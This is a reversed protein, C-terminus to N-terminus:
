KDKGEKEETAAAEELVRIIINIVLGINPLSNESVNMNKVVEKIMEPSDSKNLMEEFTYSEGLENFHDVEEEVVADIESGSVLNMPMGATVFVDRIVLTAKIIEHHEEETFEEDLNFVFGTLHPQEDMIASIRDGFDKDSVSQMNQYLSAIVGGKINTTSM